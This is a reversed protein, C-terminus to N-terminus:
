VRDSYRERATIRALEWAPAGRYVHAALWACEARAEAPTGDRYWAKARRADGPHWRYRRARLADRYAFPTDPAWVRVTPARAADLLRKLPPTGGPPATALVHIAAHCDDAARHGDFFEGCHAVLLYDLKTGRCGYAYWPVDAHTCAWPVDAFAPFRRECVKRDFAANHALVLGAGAVLAAVRADDVHRGRVMADTIGTLAVVEPPIPRGPDELAVYAPGVDFVRGARPDYTFPVAAFEIVADAAPDLGTTEVDVFLATRAPAGNPAAYRARPRFRRLVRYEGTATLVRAM